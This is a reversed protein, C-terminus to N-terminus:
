PHQTFLSVKTVSKEPLDDLAQDELGREVQFPPSYANRNLIM